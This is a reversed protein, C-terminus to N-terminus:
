AADDVGGMRGGPFYGYLTTRSVGLRSAVERVPISPDALLARAAVLGSEDLAPRRGGVRVRARAAALGARTREGILSREFEALAAFLHFVLRWSTPPPSGRRRRRVARM